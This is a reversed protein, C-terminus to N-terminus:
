NEVLLSYHTSRGGSDNKKLVKKLMLDNLDRLATDQSCKNMKAWKTSTLNGEFGDLLRNVVKMQRENLLTQSHTKWFAAKQLTQNLIENTSHVAQHFCNLFWLLWNTLDMDGKQSKELLEYYAKREKLLQASLSYFQQTSKDSRALLLDTLARAIRGNGDEFPHLTLFWFHALGAKLVLDLGQDDNFWHLFEQMEAPLSEANPAQFHVKERGMAGSVVQMPGTSDVKYQGVTIQYMGSYGTPFLSAHWGFLREKTLPLHFNSLADHVMEVVGEVNKSVLVEQLKDLGLKRAVSSRVEDPKYLEGEIEASKLVELSLMEFQANERMEFGLTELKGMLKGQSFRVDALYMLVMDNDWMFNPWDYHQYVFTSM